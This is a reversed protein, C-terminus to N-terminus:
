EMHFVIVRMGLNSYRSFEDAYKTMELSHIGALAKENYNKKTNSFRLRISM